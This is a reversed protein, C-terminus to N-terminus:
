KSGSIFPQGHPQQRGPGGAEKEGAATVGASQFTTLIGRKALWPARLEPFQKSPATAAPNGFGAAVSISVPYFYLRHRKKGFFLGITFSYTIRFTFEMTARIHGDADSLKCRKMLSKNTEQVEM